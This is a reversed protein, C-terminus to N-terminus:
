IIVREKGIKESEVYITDPCLDQEHIWQVTGMFPKVTSFLNWDKLEKFIGKDLYPKVDFIGIEGNTFTITITFDKNPVVQKVRPNM